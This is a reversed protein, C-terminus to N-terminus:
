RNAQEASGCAGRESASDQLLFYFQTSLLQCKFCYDWDKPRCTFNGIQLQQKQRALLVVVERREQADEGEHHEGRRGPASCVCCWFLRFFFFGCKFFQLWVLGYILLCYFLFLLTDSTPILFFHSPEFRKVSALLPFTYYPFYFCSSCHNGQRVSSYGLM